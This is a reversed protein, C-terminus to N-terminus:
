FVTNRCQQHWRTKEWKIQNIVYSLKIWVNQKVFSVVTISQLDFVIWKPPKLYIGGHNGTHQLM